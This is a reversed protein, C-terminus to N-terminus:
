ENEISGARYMKEINQAQRIERGSREAINAINNNSITFYSDPRLISNSMNATNHTTLIVQTPSKKLKEILKRSVGHHFYSDFEDIFMFQIGDVMQMYWMFFLSLAITGKSM